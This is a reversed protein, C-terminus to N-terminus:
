LSQVLSARVDDRVADANWRARGLVPQLGCPTADGHVAALQWGNKREVPSRL